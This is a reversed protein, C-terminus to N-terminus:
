MKRLGTCILSLNNWVLARHNISRRAQFTAERYIQTYNLCSSLSINFAEPALALITERAQRMVTNSDAARYLATDTLRPHSELVGGARDIRDGEGFVFELIGALDPFEECKLRRGRGKFIHHLKELKIRQPLRSKKQTDSTSGCDSMVKSKMDKFLELNQSVLGKSRQFRRKDQVNALKTMYNVSTVKTLGAKPTDRDQKSDLYQM